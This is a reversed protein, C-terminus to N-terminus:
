ELFDFGKVKNLANTFLVPLDDVEVKMKNALKIATKWAGNEYSKVLYLSGMLKSPKKGLLAENIDETLSLGELIVEMPKDLLADLLSFMGVTYFKDMDARKVGMKESLMGCFEARLLSSRLLELPKEDALYALMVLNLWKRLDEEGVMAVAGQLSQIERRLGFFASNVYKLLKYSISVDRSILQALKDFTYNENQLQRLIQLYQLKSGPIDRGAVVHPKQFYYGQFLDFGMEKMTEYEAFDEVKEALLRVNYRSVQEVQKELEDLPLLRVDFKVIDALELLPVLEEKYIFDDLALTYGKKKMHRCAEILEPTVVVDELIEIVTYEKPFLAPYEKILMDSSFNIFAKRGETIESIGFMLFSNTIVRSSAKDGDFSPDFYNALGERFLLEYGYVKQNKRFIPQRAIFINNKEESTIKEAM